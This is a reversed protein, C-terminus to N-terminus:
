GAIHMVIAIGANAATAAIKNKIGKALGEKLAGITGDTLTKKSWEVFRRMM